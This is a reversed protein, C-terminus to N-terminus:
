EPLARHKWRFRDGDACGFDCVCRGRATRGPGIETEDPRQKALGCGCNADVFLAIGAALLRALGETAWWVLGTSRRGRALRSQRVAVGMPCDDPSFSDRLRSSVRHRCVRGCYNGVAGMQAAVVFHAAALAFLIAGTRLDVVSALDGIAM